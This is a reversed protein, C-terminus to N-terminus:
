ETATPVEDAEVKPIKAGDDDVFAPNATQLTAEDDRLAAEEVRQDTAHQQARLTLLIYVLPVVVCALGLGSAVGAEVTTLQRDDEEADIDQGVQISHCWFGVAYNALLSALSVVECKDAGTMGETGSGDRFPKDVAVLVLMAITLSSLVVMLRQNIEPRGSDLLITASIVAIKHLILPFEFWWRSPKYKLLLWGHSEVFSTNEHDGNSIATRMRHFLVSPIAVCYLLLLFLAALALTARGGNEPVRYPEFVPNRTGNAGPTNLISCGLGSCMEASDRGWIWGSSTTMLITAGTSDTFENECVVDPASDLTSYDITVLEYQDVANCNSDFDACREKTLAEVTVREETWTCDFCIVCSKVLYGICLTYLAIRANTSHHTTHDGCHLAFLLLNLGLFSGHAIAFRYKLLSLARTDDPLNCEPSALVSFDFSFFSAAWHAVDALFDPYIRPLEFSLFNLHLSTIAISVYIAANSLAARVATAAVAVAVTDEMTEQDTARAERTGEEFSQVRTIRWLLGLLALAGIVLIAIMLVSVGEPCAFCRSSAQFFGTQCLACGPGTSNGVCLGNECRTPHTCKQCSAAGTLVNATGEPCPECVIHGGLIQPDLKAGRDGVSAAPMFTAVPCTSCFRGNGDSVKGAQCLVCASVATAQLTYGIDASRHSIPYDRSDAGVPVTAGQSSSSDWGIGFPFYLNGSLSQESPTGELQVPGFETGAPCGFHVVDVGGPTALVAFPAGAGSGSNVVIMGARGWGTSTVNARLQFQGFFGGTGMMTGAAVLKAPNGLGIIQVGRAAGHLEGTAGVLAYIQRNVEFVALSTAGSLIPFTEWDAGGSDHHTAAGAAEPANLLFGDDGVLKIVQVGDDAVSAVIAYVALQQDSMRFVEVSYAGDLMTFERNGDTAEGAATLEVDSQVGVHGIRIIQIGDDAASAVIAFPAWETVNSSPDVDIAQFIAVDSAGGLTHFAGCRGSPVGAADQCTGGIDVAAGANVIPNAGNVDIRMIQVGNSTPSTAVAYVVPEITFVEVSNFNNLMTAGRSDQGAASWTSRASEVVTGAQPLRLIQVGLPGSVIAFPTPGTSTLFTAVSTAGALLFGASVNHQARGLARPNAPDVLDVVQVANAAASAVLAYPHSYEVVGTASAYEYYFVGIDSAGELLLDNDASADVLRGAPLATLGCALQVGGNEVDGSCFAQAQAAAAAAALWAVRLAAGAPLPPREGGRGWGGPRPRWRM